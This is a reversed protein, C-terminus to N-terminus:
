ATQLELAVACPELLDIASLIGVLEGDADVIPLASIHHEVLLQAALSIPQDPAATIPEFTVFEDISSTGGKSRGLARRLDRDSLIGVFRGNQVVPLHRIGARKCLEEAEEVTARIGITRPRESMYRAIPPANSDAALRACHDSYARLLDIESVIGVLKDREM